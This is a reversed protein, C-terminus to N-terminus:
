RLRPYRTKCIPTRTISRGFKSALRHAHGSASEMQRDSSRIKACLPAHDLQVPGKPAPLWNAAKEPGPNDNQFYLDLSGDANYKFPMWSSVAFRNLPNAVQFGDNDYLTVSWFADVPPTATKTSTSRTNTRATSRNEPKTSWSQASLDCGRPPQRRPRGPRRHRAEFLLQRLRGDHRHEDVLRQRRAGADTDEVGDITASRRRVRWRRASPPILRTSISARARSSASAKETQAIIPQDTVHPPQLKLLEAAYAFFKGAPMTDIQIKPPTKMDVTPDIKVNVPQAPKGWQSLPTIKYGAQIKHVADYDRRAMRRPADSLGCM